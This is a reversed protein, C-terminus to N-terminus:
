MARMQADLLTRDRKHVQGSAAVAELAARAEAPRGLAHLVRAAYFQLSAWEPRNAPVARAAEAAPLDAQGPQRATMLAALLWANDRGQQWRGDALAHERDCTAADPAGPGGACAQVTQIFDFWEYKRLAAALPGEPRSPAVSPYLDQFLDLAGMTYPNSEPKSLADMAQRLPVAPVLQMLARRGTYGMARHVPALSADAMAAKFRADLEKMAAEVRAQRRQGPQAVAASFEAGRLGRRTWADEVAASWEGDRTVNRLVARMAGLAAWPRMPHDPQAAIADFASRAAAFDDGYFMASARQYEHLAKLRAPAGQPPAAPLAALTPDQPAKSCRAFVADQGLVWHRRGEDSLQRDEKLSNLTRSALAFADPGCQGEQVEFRLGGPLEQRKSRFYDPAVAPAGALLTGRAALWGALEDTGEPPNPGALLWSGRRQHSERALAGPPLHMVRWAVFLSARGYSSRLLGLAGRAYATDDAPGVVPGVYNSRLTEPLDADGAKSQAVAPRTACSLALWAMVALGLHVARPLPRLSPPLHHLPM